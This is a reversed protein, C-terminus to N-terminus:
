GGTVAPIGCLNQQSDRVLKTDKPILYNSIVLYVKNNNEIFLPLTNKLLKESERPVMTKAQVLKGTTPLEIDPLYEGRYQVIQNM